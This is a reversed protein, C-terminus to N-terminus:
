QLGQHMNITADNSHSVQYCNMAGLRGKTSDGSYSDTIYKEILPVIDEVNASVKEHFKHRSCITLTRKSTIQPIDWEKMSSSDMKGVEEVLAAAFSCIIVAKEDSINQVLAATEPAEAINSYPVARGICLCYM